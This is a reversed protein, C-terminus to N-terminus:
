SLIAVAAHFPQSEVFFIFGLYTHHFILICFIYIVSVSSVINDQFFLVVGIFLIIFM